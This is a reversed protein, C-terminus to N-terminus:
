GHVANMKQIVVRNSPGDISFTESWGGTGSTDRQSLAIPLHHKYRIWDLVEKEIRLALYGDETDIQHLVRWGVKEFRNLRTSGIQTVGIKRARYESHELFYVISAKSVDFGYKACSPCGTGQNRRMAPSTKWSHGEGCVWWVPIPSGAQLEHPSLTTNKDFDWEILLEPDVTALDNIGVRLIRNSCVPCGIGKSRVYPSTSWDHGKECIWRVQIESGYVVDRPTLTGNLTPHWEKALLPYRTEFDNFGIEVKLNACVACRKGTVFAHPNTEFSHGKECSLWITKTSGKSFTEPSQQNRTSDWWELVDPSATVLDNVGPVVQKGSCVSCGRGISAYHIASQYDHGFECTFWAKKASHAIVDCPSIGENRSSWKNAVDPHTTALDNYGALVKKNACYPCGVRQKHRSAITAEWEHGESCNWWAKKPSGPMVHSPSVENRNSWSDGLEPDVTLLDNFGQLVKNNSCYPCGTNQIARSRVQAGWEHNLECVWWRKRNSGFHVEDARVDNKNSYQAALDPYHSALDNFGALVRQGSCFPCGSGPKRRNEPPLQYTHGVECRWWYKKQSRAPITKPDVYENLDQAWHKMAESFESILM